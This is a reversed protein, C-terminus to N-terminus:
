GSRVADRVRSFVDSYDVADYDTTDVEIVPGELDLPEIRGRSLVGEVDRMAEKDIHGPHRVGSDDRAKFREILVSGQAHCLVQVPRFPHLRQLGRFEPTSRARDFNSEVAVSRGVAIEQKVVHYLLAYCAGALHRSWARDKWGITDFLIEKIDDKTIFPLALDRALRRGLTTKGTAPAGTVILVVTV